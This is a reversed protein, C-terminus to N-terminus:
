LISEEIKYNKIIEDINNKAFTLRKKLDGSVVIYEQSSEELLKILRKHLWVRRKGTRVLDQVYPIDIDTVIYLSYKRKKFLKEVEKTGRGMFFEQWAYAVLSNTDCFLVKHSYKALQDEFSNQTKAIFAFEDDQWKTGSSQKGETYYRGFEPVWSTKFKEALLQTLTTTGSSEAGLLCIRKVFYARVVPHLFQPYSHPKERIETGSIPFKRRPIDVAVHRAGM